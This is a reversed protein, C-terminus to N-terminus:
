IIEEVTVLMPNRLKNVSDMHEKPVIIIIRRPGQHAHKAVFAMKRKLRTESM